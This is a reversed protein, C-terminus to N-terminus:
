WLGHRALRRKLEKPSAFQWAVLGHSRAAEVFPPKDDLFLIREPVQGARSILAQYIGAEPKRSGVEFSLICLSFHRVIPFHERIYHFHLSNTNSVMFLPYRAKLHDVVVEMGEQPEFIENWLRCFDPYSLTLRFLQLIEQYFERSSLRGTDFGPELNSAFIAAYVEQAPLDVVEALRRCFRGHDVKVLVNGLDFAM